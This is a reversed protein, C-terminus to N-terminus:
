NECITDGTTLSHYLGAPDRSANSVVVTNEMASPTGVAYLTALSLLRSLIPSPRSPVRESESRLRPHTTSSSRPLRRSTSEDCETQRDFLAAQTIGTRKGEVVGRVRPRSERRLIRRKELQPTRRREGWM